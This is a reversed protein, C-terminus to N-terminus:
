LVRCVSYPSSLAMVSSMTICFLGRAASKGNNMRNGCVLILSTLFNMQTSPRSGM